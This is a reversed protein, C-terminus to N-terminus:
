VALAALLEVTEKINQSREPQFLYAQRSSLCENTWQYQWGIPFNEDSQSTKKITEKLSNAVLDPPYCDSYSLSMKLCLIKSKQNICNQEHTDLYKKPIIM